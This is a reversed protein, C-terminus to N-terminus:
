GFIHILNVIIKIRKPNGRIFAKPITVKVGACIEGGWPPEIASEATLNVGALLLAPAFVLKAGTCNYTHAARWAAGVM